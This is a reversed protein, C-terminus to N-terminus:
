VCNRGGEQRRKISIMRQERLKERQHVEKPTELTAAKWTLWSAFAVVIMCLRGIWSTTIFVYETVLCFIALHVWVARETDKQLKNMVGSCGLKAWLVNANAANSTYSSGNYNRFRDIYITKRGHAMRRLYSM